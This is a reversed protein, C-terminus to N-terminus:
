PGPPSTIGYVKKMQVHSGPTSIVIDLMNMVLHADVAADNGLSVFLNIEDKGDLVEQDINLVSDIWYERKELMDAHVYRACVNENVPLIELKSTPKLQTYLFNNVWKM